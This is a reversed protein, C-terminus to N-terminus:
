GESNQQDCDDCVEGARKGKYMRAGAEDIKSFPLVPVTLRQRAEPNLFYIYRLQFGKLPKAGADKFQRMSAAGTFGVGAKDGLIEKARNKGTRVGLDSFTKGDLEWITTNKKIGTLLFGSARYITGDGCQTGDAYSIIWELNPYHKKLLKMAVSIARSESNRPLRDSFAMRNLELMDNWKTGEVLPLVRRKDMSPGFQMCGELRGQYYVGLHVQSNTVVRGSYHLRKILANGAKSTIPKVLLDKAKGM